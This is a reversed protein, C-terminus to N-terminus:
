ANLRRKIKLITARSQDGQFSSLVKTEIRDLLTNLVARNYTERTFGIDGLQKDVISKGFAPMFLEGLFEEIVELDDPM